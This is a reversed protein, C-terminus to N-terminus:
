NCKFVDWRQANNEVDGIPVIVNGGMKAAENRAIIERDRTERQANINKATTTVKGPNECQDLMEMRTAIVEVQEGAPGLEVNSCGAMAAAALLLAAVACGGPWRYRWGYRKATGYEM